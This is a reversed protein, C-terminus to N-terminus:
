ITLPNICLDSCLLYKFKYLISVEAFSHIIYEDGQSISQGVIHLAKTFLNLNGVHDSHGHTCVVHTIDTTDLNKKSLALSFFFFIM